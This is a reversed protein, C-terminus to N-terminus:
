ILKEIKNIYNKLYKIKSAYRDKYSIILKQDNRLKIYSENSSIFKILESPNSFKNNKFGILIAKPGVDVYDINLKICKIKLLITFILNNVEHVFHRRNETVEHSIKGLFFM